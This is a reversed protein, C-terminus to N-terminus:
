IRAHVSLKNYDLSSDPTALSRGDVPAENGCAKSDQNNPHLLSLLDPNYAISLYGECKYGTDTSDKLVTEHHLEFPAQCLRNSYAAWISLLATCSVQGTKLYEFHRKVLQILM